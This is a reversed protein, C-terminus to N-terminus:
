VDREAEFWPVIATVFGTPSDHAAGNMTAVLRMLAVPGSESKVDPIALGGGLVSSGLVDGRKLDGSSCGFSSSRTNTELVRGLRRRCRQVCRPRLRTGFSKWWNVLETLESRWNAGFPMRRYPGGISRGTGRTREVRELSIMMQLGAVRSASAM